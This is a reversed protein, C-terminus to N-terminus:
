KEHEELLDRVDSRSIGSGEIEERLRLLLRELRRYLPKQELRLARAIDAVSAGEFYRLHVIHADEPSLKAIAARVAERAHEREGEAEAELLEGDASRPSPVTDLPSEGVVRPRGRNTAPLAKFIARLEAEGLTTDGRSRLISVAQDFSNGDRYVLRELAVAEHGKRKAEASPRWRGRNAVLFDHYLKYVVTAIYTSFTSHSRFKRVKAYDNEILREKAWSTFDATEEHSMGGQRCFKAAMREIFQIHELFLERPDQTESMM